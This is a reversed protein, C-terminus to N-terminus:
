FEVASFFDCNGKGEGGDLWAGAEKRLGTNM